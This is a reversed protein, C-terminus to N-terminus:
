RSAERLRSHPCGRRCAYYIKTRISSAGTLPMKQEDLCRDRGIDGLIPCTVVLGMLAGRVKAEVRAMDGTYANKFVHSLLAPSYGIREAALRASTRSAEQALEVVWDPADAGWAARVKAVFDVDSRQGSNPGRKM